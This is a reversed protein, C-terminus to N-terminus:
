GIISLKKLTNNVIENKLEEKEIQIEAIQLRKEYDKIRQLKKEKLEDDYKNLRDKAIREEKKANKTAEQSRYHRWYDSYPDLRERIDAM